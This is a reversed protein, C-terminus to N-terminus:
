SVGAGVDLKLEAIALTFSYLHTFTVTVTSPSAQVATPCSTPARPSITPFAGSAFVGGNQVFSGVTRNYFSEWACPYFTGERITASVGSSNTSTFNEAFVLHSFVDQPTGTSSSAASGVFQVITDVVSVGAASASIQFTPAYAVFSQGTGQAQIVADNEFSFSQPSYYRDPLSLTLAGLSLNEPLTGGKTCGPCPTIAASAYVGTTSPIFALNAVTAAAILPITGSQMQFQTGVTAPGATAAQFDIESKLQAFSSESQVTLTQENEGMWIPVFQTLFIGFLSFFVLLALLSGVVAVVGRRSRRLNRRFRLRHRHAQRERM